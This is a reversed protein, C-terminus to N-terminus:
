IHAMLGSFGQSKLTAYFILRRNSPLCSVLSPPNWTPDLSGSPTPSLPRRTIQTDGRKSSSRPSIAPQTKSLVCVNSHNRERRPLTPQQPSPSQPRATSARSASPSHGSSQETPPYPFYGILPVIRQPPNRTTEDLGTRDLHLLALAQGTTDQRTGTLSHTPHPSALRCVSVFFPIRLPPPHLITSPARTSLISLYPYSPRFPPHKNSSNVATHSRNPSNTHGYWFCFCFCFLFRLPVFVRRHQTEDLTSADISGIKIQSPALDLSAPTCLHLLLVVLEVV